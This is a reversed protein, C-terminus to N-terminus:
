RRHFAERCELYERDQSSMGSGSGRGLSHLPMTVLGLVVMLWFTTWAAEGPALTISVPCGQEHAIRDGM